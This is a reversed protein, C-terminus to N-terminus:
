QSRPRRGTLVFLASIRKLDAKERKVRKKAKGKEKRENVEQRRKREKRRDEKGKKEGMRGEERDFPSTTAAAKTTHKRDRRVM